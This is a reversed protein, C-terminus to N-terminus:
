LYVHGNDNNSNLKSKQFPTEQNVCKNIQSEGVSQLESILMEAETIGM